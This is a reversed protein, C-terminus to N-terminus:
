KGYSLLHLKWTLGVNVRLHKDTLAGSPNGNTGTVYAASAHLRVSNKQAKLPYFNIGGGFSTLETGPLVCLDAAVNTRNVDYTAKAYVELKPHCYCSLEAMVSCDRFFYPQHAAARNMFDLQLCANGLSLQNGLALYSIYKKPAYEMLNVSYLTSLPGHNGMWFLNYAFLDSHQDNHFPSECFQATLKDNGKSTTYTVSGGFQYCAINNWYESAMFVDIPARDYEYGGILVIQKGAAIGWHKDAQYNLYIWDTADFFNSDSIGKNLRQRWSYSFYSNLTGDLRLNLYNGKIGSKGDLKDGDVSERNYGMRTEAGIEVTPKVQAYGSAFVCAMGLAMLLKTGKKM